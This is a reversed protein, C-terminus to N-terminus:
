ELRNRLADAIESVADGHTEIAKRLMSAMCDSAAAAVLRGLLEPHAAAYGAGLKDDVHNVAATLWNCMQDGASRGLTEYKNEM